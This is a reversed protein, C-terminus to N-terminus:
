RDDGLVAIGFGTKGYSNGNYLMYVRDEHTFLYPYCIMESDWGSESVDIGAREDARSWNVGDTSSAFGIRYQTVTPSARHAFWMYYVGDEKLVSPRGFAYEHEDKFPIVLGPECNWSVGDKSTAHHIGYRPTWGAEDKNWAIGSNYWTHWLDEEVHFATAAAFLPHQADRGLLPGQFEKTLELKEADVIARGTDCIWLGEPLNQWGVYYLYTTNKFKVFCVSIVGDCDFTGIPGPLLAMRPASTLSISDNTVVAKALFIHSRRNCDRSTFAILFENGTLHLACPHSAHTWGDVASSYVLGKKEWPFPSASTLYKSLM